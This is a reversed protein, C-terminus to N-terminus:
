RLAIADAPIGCEGDALFKTHKPPTSGLRPGSNM